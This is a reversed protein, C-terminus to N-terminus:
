RKKQLFHQMKLNILMKNLDTLLNYSHFIPQFLLDQMAKSNNFLVRHMRNSSTKFNDTFNM